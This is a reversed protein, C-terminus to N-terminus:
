RQRADATGPHPERLVDIASVSPAPFWPRNWSTIVLNLWRVLAIFVVGALVTFVTGALLAIVLFIRM